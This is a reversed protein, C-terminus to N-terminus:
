GHLKGAMRYLFLPAQERGPTGALLWTLCAGALGYLPKDVLGDWRKGPRAELTSVKTDIADVKDSISRQQEAMVAASTAIRNLAEQNKEVGEMRRKLSSIEHHHGDLAVAIEENTM